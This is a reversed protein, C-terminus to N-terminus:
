LCTLYLEEGGYILCMLSMCSRPIGLNHLAIQLNRLNGSQEHCIYWWEIMQTVSGKSNQKFIRGTHSQDM